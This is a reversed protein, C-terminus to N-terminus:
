STQAFEVGGFMLDCIFFMCLFLSCFLAFVVCESLSLLRSDRTFTMLSVPKALDTDFGFVCSGVDLFINSM